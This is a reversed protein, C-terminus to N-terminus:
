GWRVSVLTEGIANCERCRVRKELDVVRMDPSVDPRVLFTEPPILTEHGCGYCTVKVFDGPRLDSVRAKCLPVIRSLGSRSPGLDTM